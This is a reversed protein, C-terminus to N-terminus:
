PEIVLRSILGDRVTFHFHLDVVGSGPFDGELHHVADFGDDGTRTASTLQRLAGPRGAAAVGRLEDGVALPLQEDVVRDTVRPGAPPDLHHVQGGDLQGHGLM